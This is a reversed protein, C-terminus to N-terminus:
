GFNAQIYTLINDFDELDVDSMPLKKGNIHLVNDEITYQKSLLMTIEAKTLYVQKRKLSILKIGIADLNIVRM